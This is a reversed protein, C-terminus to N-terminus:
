DGFKRLRGNCCLTGHRLVPIRTTMCSSSDGSLRNWHPPPLLCTANPKANRPTSSPRSSSSAPSPSKPTATASSGTPNLITNGGKVAATPCKGYMYTVSWMRATCCRSPPSTWYRVSSHTPSPSSGTSPPSVSSVIQKTTPMEGSTLTTLSWSARVPVGIATREATKGTGSWMRGLRRTRCLISSGSAAHSRGSHSTPTPPPTLSTTPEITGGSRHQGPVAVPGGTPVWRRAKM